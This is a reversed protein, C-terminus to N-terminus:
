GYKREASPRLLTDNGQKPAHGELSAKLLSLEQVLVRNNNELKTIKSTLRHGIIFLVVFLASFMIIFPLRVGALEAGLNAIDPIIVFILPLIAVMSLMMFDYLDISRRMMKSILYTLYVSGFLCVSIISPWTPNYPEIM